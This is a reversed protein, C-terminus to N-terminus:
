IWVRPNEDPNLVHGHLKYVDLYVTVNIKYIGCRYGAEHDEMEGHSAGGGLLCIDGQIAM